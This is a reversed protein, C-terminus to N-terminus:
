ILNFQLRIMNYTVTVNELKEPENSTSQLLRIDQVNYGTVSLYTGFVGIDNLLDSVADDVPLTGIFEANVHYVMITVDCQWMPCKSQIISVDQTTIVGYMGTATRPPLGDYIPLSCADIIAKRLYKNPLNM